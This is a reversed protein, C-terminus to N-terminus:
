CIPLQWRTESRNAIGRASTRCLQQRRGMRRRRTRIDRRRGDITLYMLRCAASVCSSVTRADAGNGLKGQYSDFTRGYELEIQYAELIRRYKESITVDARAMM